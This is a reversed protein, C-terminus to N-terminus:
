SVTMATSGLAAVVGIGVGGGTPPSLPPLSSLLGLSSLTPPPSFTPPPDTVVPVTMVLSESTCLKASLPVASGSLKKVIEPLVEVELPLTVKLPSVILVQKFISDDVLIEKLAVELPM